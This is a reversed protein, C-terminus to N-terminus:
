AMSRLTHSRWGNGTDFSYSRNGFIAWVVDVDDPMTLHTEPLAHHEVTSLIDFEPESLADFVLVAHRQKGGHDAFSNRINRVKAHEVKMWTNIRAALTELRSTRTGGWGLLLSIAAPGERPVSWQVFAGKTLRLVDMQALGLPDTRGLTEWDSPQGMEARDLVRFPPLLKDILGKLKPASHKPRNADFEAERDERTQVSLGEAAFFDKEAKSSERFKPMPELSDSNTLALVSILWSRSLDQVERYVDCTEFEKLLRRQSYSTVRKVEAVHAGDVSCLDAEPVLHKAPLPTFEVRLAGRLHRRAEDVSTADSGM